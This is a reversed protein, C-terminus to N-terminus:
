PINFFNRNFDLLLKNVASVTAWPVGRNQDGFYYVTSMVFLVRRYLVEFHLM